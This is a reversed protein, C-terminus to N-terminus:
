LMNLEKKKIKSWKQFKDYSFAKLFLFVDYKSMKIDSGSNWRMIDTEPAICDKYIYADEVGLLHGFEHAATNEIEKNTRKRDDIKSYIKASFMSSSDWDYSKFKAYSIGDGKEYEIRDYNEWSSVNVDIVTTKVSM